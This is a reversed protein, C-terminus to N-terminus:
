SRVGYQGTLPVFRCFSVRSIKTGGGIRRVLLLEQEEPPGVPIVLRGDEALQETLPRPIEPAAAAVAIGDFPAEEPLGASGDGIRVEVNTYGLRALTERAKEGLSAHTEVAYVRACLLSLVAASYGSGAGVELVNETGKLELSEATAAVMYPQSITQGEEIGIPQDAYALEISEVPAFAHRPVAAMAELVRQSRIGRARIQKEVMARRAEAFHADNVIREDVADSKFFNGMLRV